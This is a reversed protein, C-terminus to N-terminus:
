ELRKAQIAYEAMLEYQTTQTIFHGRQNKWVFLMNKM